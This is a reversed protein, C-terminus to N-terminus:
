SKECNEQKLRYNVIRKILDWPLDESYPFQITGKSTKYGRIENKFVEIGIAGPFFGIHDKFAGFHVINKKCVFTPIGYKITEEAQNPMLDQIFHYIKELYPIHSPDQMQIYAEIVKM